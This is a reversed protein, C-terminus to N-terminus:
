SKSVYKHKQAGREKILRFENAFSEISFKRAIEGEVFTTLFFFVSLFGNKMKNQLKTKFIKIASIRPRM